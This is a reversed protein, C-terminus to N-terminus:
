SKEKDQSESQGGANQQGKQLIDKMEEQEATAVEFGKGIAYRAFFEQDLKTKFSYLEVNEEKDKTAVIYLM